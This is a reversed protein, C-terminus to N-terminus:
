TRDSIGGKEIKMKKYKSAKTFTDCLLALFMFSLFLGVGFFLGNILSDMM